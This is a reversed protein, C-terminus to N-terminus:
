FAIKKEFPKIDSQLLVEVAIAFLLNYVLRACLGTLRIVWLSDGSGLVGILVFLLFTQPISPPVVDTQNVHAKGPFICHM